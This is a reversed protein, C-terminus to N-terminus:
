RPSASLLRASILARRTFWLKATYPARRRQAASGRWCEVWRRALSKRAPLSLAADVCCGIGLAQRLGPRVQALHGALALAQWDCALSGTPCDSAGANEQDFQPADRRKGVLTCFFARAMGEQGKLRLEFLGNGVAKSHPDGLNPGLSARLRGYRMAARATLGLAGRIWSARM